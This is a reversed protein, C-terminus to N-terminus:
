PARTATKSSSPRLLSPRKTSAGSSTRRRSRCATVVLWSASAVVSPPSLASSHRGHLLPDEHRAGCRADALGGRAEEGLAIPRDTAVVEVDVAGARDGFREAVCCAVAAEVDRAFFGPADRDAIELRGGAGPDVHQEVGGADESHAAEFLHRRRLASLL